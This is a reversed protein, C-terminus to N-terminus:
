AWDLAAAEHWDVSVSLQFTGAADMAVPNRIGILQGPELQIPASESAHFEFVTEKYAGAAGVHALSWERFAVTEWVTSGLTLLGTTAIRMDGGNAVSMESTDASGHKAVAVPLSTGGSQAANSGRYLGLRRGASIPATFAAICTFELRVREIFARRPSSPDLRMCFLTSNIALAAAIVGTTAGIGFAFGRPVTTSRMALVGPDVDAIRALDQSTFIAM